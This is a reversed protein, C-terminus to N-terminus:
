PLGSFALSYRAFSGYVSAASSHCLLRLTVKKLLQIVGCNETSM